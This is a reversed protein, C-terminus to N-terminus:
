KGHPRLAPGSRPNSLLPRRNVGSSWSTLSKHCQDCKTNGGQHTSSPRTICRTKGGASFKHTGDHCSWCQSAAAGVVVGQHSFSYSSFATYSKHCTSCGGATVGQNSAHTFLHPIWATGATHCYDCELTTPIHTTANKGTANTGNHCTSCTHAAVTSHDIGAPLWATTAHCSNCTATTSPHKSDQAKYGLTGGSVPGSNNVAPLGGYTSNHCTDCNTATVNQTTLHNFTSTSFTTGATHCADCAATGTPIHASPKGLVPVTLTAYTGSHCTSCGGATVGQNSSHTFTNSKFDPSTAHCVDCSKGSTPIHGSGSPLGLANSTTYSGNHCTTCQGAVVNQNAAHTFTAPKFAV